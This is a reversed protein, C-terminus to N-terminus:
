YIDWQKIIRKPITIWKENNLFFPWAAPIKHNSAYLQLKQYSRIRQCGRDILTLFTEKGMKFITLDPPFIMLWRPNLNLQTKVWLILIFLQLHYLFHLCANNNMSFKVRSLVNSILNRRFKIKSLMETPAERRNSTVLQFFISM